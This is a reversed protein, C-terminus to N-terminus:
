KIARRLEGGGGHRSRDTYGIKKLGGILGGWGVGRGGMDTDIAIM